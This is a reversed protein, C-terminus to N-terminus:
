FDSVYGRVGGSVNEGWEEGSIGQSEVGGGGGRLNGIMRRKEGGKRCEVWEGWGMLVGNKVCVLGVWGDDGM